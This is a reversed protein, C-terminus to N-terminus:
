EARHTMEGSRDENVEWSMVLPWLDLVTEEGGPHSIGVGDGQGGVRGRRDVVEGGDGRGEVEGLNGLRCSVAREIHKCVRVTGTHLSGDEIRGLFDHSLSRLNGFHGVDVRVLVVHSHRNPTQM